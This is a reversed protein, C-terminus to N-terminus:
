LIFTKLRKGDCNLCNAISRPVPQEVSSRITKELAELPSRECVRLVDHLSSGNGLYIYDAPHKKTSGAHQEFFYASVVQLIFLIVVYHLCSM